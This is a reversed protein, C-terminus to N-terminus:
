NPEVVVEKLLVSQFLGNKGDLCGRCYFDTNIKLKGSIGSCRKHVWRLCACRISNSAVGKRCVGCPYEGSDKSQFRSMSCQMVKIKSANVRRGKAEMGNKWKRLKEILLEESEAMLVLDDAYLLEMPLDERFERSLAEMVIIFLLPGLVSGQHVEVRIIFANSERGYLRVKTTVDEYMARIVSVIWEDVGLYRLTWWVVERPVMDFVKELDVTCDSRTMYHWFIESRSVLICNEPYTPLIYPKLFIRPCLNYRM